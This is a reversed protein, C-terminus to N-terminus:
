EKKNSRILKKAVVKNTTNKTSTKKATVKKAAAKKTPAKKATTKKASAKKTATKTGSSEIIKKCDDITLKEPETTKPIKYNKKQYSIYPGWRGKLIKLAADEKFEKIISERIKKRKEEIIEIARENQIVSPDDTKALSYFLSKHKVYPGFRGIAVSMKENEYTGVNRPFKFLDLADELTLTEISQGNRLGAFKPKEETDTDGLQVMPGYRGIKVFINKDTEPHKGLLKEGSFKKSKELTDEIQSHFPSYFSKIMENWVKQGEAIEDFEKEIKATFNFNIINEFYQLLFKNVLTGIDTPFLKSKEYGTKETKEIETLENNKLSLFNFKREKGDRDEKVVYERKQITSITPAYTSPRGIGLEEMKKVLSAESYRPPHQSFKEVAILEQLNLKEGETLPPLIGKQNESNEDDTSELYVKLFGDFKIVEGKAVLKEKTTSIKISVNTKELIADSMQSAITRKWILNYLKQGANDGDIEHVNIFTPRIAEHAEQAGKAKTKYKRIKVYKEGFLSAIENKATSLALNSLNVSDTRMYTIKGSEYLKQAVRMTNAVSFGLKRSAEQQLTSTTFPAAPSKKAPKKEISAVSFEAAKCKNLFELAEEKTAFRKPLEAKLLRDGNQSSVKFDATIRYTTVSTFNKIEEEREVILRVAVSQVRGASLAPKVKRWLLPSLEFGVLRDLVRRAQQANVLDIDINRPHNIAETIASKTIEHFVIRKIKKEDLKLAKVLHWSIAEGERDEDSALWVTEAEKSLKKLESVIKKKDSSIEYNPMFDNEIDVGLQKKSLDMVHGFSSKVLFDKGLFREITKAKAPSEVIVLNKVM